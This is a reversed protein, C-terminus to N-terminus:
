PGPIPMIFWLWFNKRASIRAFFPHVKETFLTLRSWAAGERPPTMKRHYGWAIMDAFQLPLANRMDAPVIQKIVDWHNYLGGWTKRQNKRVLEQFPGIFRENQDFEFYLEPLKRSHFENLYWAFMGVPVFHNCIRWVSPLKAGNAKLSRYLRMDVTCIFTCFETKDLQSSYALCDQVLNVRKDEDWSKFPGKGPVVERMHLYPAIPSRSRLVERWGREFGAWLSEEAAVGALVVFPSSDLTGSGDCYSKM